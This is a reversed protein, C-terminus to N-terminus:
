INGEVMILPTLDTQYVLSPWLNTANTQLRINQISNSGTTNNRSFVRLIDGSVVSIDVTRSATGFSVTWSMLNTLVGARTRTVDVTNTVAGPASHDFTLRITGSQIFGYIMTLVSTTSSITQVADSRGRISGGATLPELAGLALRPAGAEGAFAAPINLYIGTVVAGSALGGVGIASNPFITYTM